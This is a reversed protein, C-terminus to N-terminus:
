FNIIGEIKEPWEIFCRHGGFFYEEYGMDYVERLNNIRYFDFHYIVENAAHYENVISFTPSSVNDAVNLQKCLAKILTTKGAGMEGKFLVIKSEGIVALIQKAVSNLEDPSNCFFVHESM